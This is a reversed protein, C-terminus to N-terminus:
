KGNIFRHVAAMSQQQRTFTVTTGACVPNLSPAISVSVVVNNDETLTITNSTAPNGTPCPVSSNLVCSVIDGNAPIYSYVPYTTAVNTGNVKWQYAPTTGGNVPSATLTVMSGQCFPNNSASISISVPLIPNVIMTVANSTDPNNM